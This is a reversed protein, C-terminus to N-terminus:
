LKVGANKEIHNWIEAFVEDETQNANITKWGYDRALDKFVARAHEVLALDKEFKHQEEVSDMFRQGDLLFAMDEKLLHSNVEELFARPVGHAVGWGIGTGTYDESIIWVGDKLRQEILPICQTRNLATIIQIERASFHDPNGARLFRDAMPGSPLIDYKPFKLYEALKGRRRLEKVLRKAQTTKGLNNIGYLVILKGLPM